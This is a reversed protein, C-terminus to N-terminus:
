TLKLACGFLDMKLLSEASRDQVTMFFCKPPNSDREFGGFVCVGDVCKGRNFKRKGFKSKDIEVVKGPEGNKECEDEIILCCVEM